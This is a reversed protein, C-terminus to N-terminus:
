ADQAPQADQAPKISTTATAEVDLAKADRELRPQAIAPPLVIMVQAPTSPSPAGNKATETCKKAQRVGFHSLRCIGTSITSIYSALKVRDAMSWNDPNTQVAKSLKEADAKLTVLVKFLDQKVQRVIGAPAVGEGAEEVPAVSEGQGEVPAVAQCSSPTEGAGPDADDRANAGM